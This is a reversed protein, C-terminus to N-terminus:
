VLGGCMTVYEAGQETCWDRSNALPSKEVRYFCRASGRFIGQSVTTIVGLPARLVPDLVGVSILGEAPASELEFVERDVAVPRDPALVVESLHGMVPVVWTM